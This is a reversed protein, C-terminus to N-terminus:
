DRNKEEGTPQKNKRIRTRKNIKSRVLKNEQLARRVIKRKSSRHPTSIIM